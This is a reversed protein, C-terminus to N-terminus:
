YFIIRDIGCVNRKHNSDIKQWFIDHLGDNPNTTSRAAMNVSRRHLLTSFDLSKSDIRLSTVRLLGTATRFCNNLAANLKVINRIGDM